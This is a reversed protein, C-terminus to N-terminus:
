EEATLVFTKTSNKGTTVIYETESDMGFVVEVRFYGNLEATEYYSSLVSNKYVCGSVPINELYNDINAQVLTYEEYILVATLNDDKDYVFIESSDDDHMSKEVTMEDTVCFDYIKSIEEARGAVGKLVEKIEEDTMELNYEVEPTATPAPTITAGIRIGGEYEDGCGILMSSMIIVAAFLVHRKKM